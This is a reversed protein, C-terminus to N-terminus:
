EPAPPAYGRWEAEDKTVLFRNTVAGEAESVRYLRSREGAGSRIVFYDFSKDSGVYYARDPHTTGAREMAQANLGARTVTTATAACGCVLALLLLAAYHKM